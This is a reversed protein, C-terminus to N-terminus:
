LRSVQGALLFRSGYRNRAGINCGDRLQFLMADSL